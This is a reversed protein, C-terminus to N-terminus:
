EYSPKANLQMNQVANNLANYNTTAPTSQLEDATISSDLRSPTPLYSRMVRSSPSDLVGATRARPRNASAFNAFAQVELNHQRVAEHILAAQAATSDASPTLQGSYMQQLQEYQDVEDDDVDAYKEKANVSYSRFRNATNKNNYANL